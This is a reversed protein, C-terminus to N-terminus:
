PMLFCARRALLIKYLTAGHFGALSVLTAKNQATILNSHIPVVRRLAIFAAESDVCIGADVLRDAAMLAICSNCECKGLDSM